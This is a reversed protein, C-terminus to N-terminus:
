QDHAGNIRRRAQNSRTELYAEIARAAQDIYGLSRQLEESSFVYSRDLRRQLLQVHGYIVALPTRIHHELAESSRHDERQQQGDPGPSDRPKM